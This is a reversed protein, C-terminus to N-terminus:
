FIEDKQAQLRRAKQKAVQNLLKIEPAISLPTNLVKKLYQDFLAEDLVKAAYFKAAYVYSLLFKGKTIKLNTEFLSKAKSPNGGLIRPKQGYISGFFLYVAGYFYTSDLQRVRTMIQEVKPLDLLAGPDELSLNIAGAWAFGTWFLAPVDSRNAKQLAIAVSRPTLAWNEKLNLAHKLVEQAYNKARIYLHRAETQDSDEAFALAYGAYGQALLLRIADNEPDSKLLGEMLKLNSALAPRAINLNDEEYFAKVADEFVPTAQRIAFRRMSCSQLVFLILLVVTARSLKNKM